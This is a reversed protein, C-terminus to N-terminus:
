RGLYNDRQKNWAESHYSSKDLIECIMDEIDLSAADLENGDADFYSMTHDDPVIADDRNCYKLEVDVEIYNENAFYITFAASDGWRSVIPKSASQYTTIKNILDSM